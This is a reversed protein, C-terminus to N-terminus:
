ERDGAAKGRGRFRRAQLMMLGVGLLAFSSPEPILLGASSLKEDSMRVEDILGNWQSSPQDTSGITFNVNADFVSTGSHAVSQSLLAGGDTLNQQYFTIGNASTDALNVTIAVYYDKDLELAPLITPAITITNLGTTSILFNLKMSGSVAFLWSRQDGTASWQGAIGKQNTNTTNTNIFAEITFTTDNFVSSDPIQFRDGGDFSAAYDNSAGTAPIISPFSSGDGTGPIELQSPTGGSGPDGLTLGNGSSDERFAGLEFRWYGTVDARLTGPLVIGLALLLSRAFHSPIPLSFM